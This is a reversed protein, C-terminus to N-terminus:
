SSATRTAPAPSSARSVQINVSPASARLASVNSRATARNTQQRQNIQRLRATRAQEYRAWRQRVTLAVVRKRRLLAQRRTELAVFRPDAPAVVATNTTTNRQSRPLPAASVTTWLVVFVLLTVAIIYARSTTAVDTM